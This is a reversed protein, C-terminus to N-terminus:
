QTETEPNKQEIFWQHVRNKFAVDTENENMHMPKGVVIYIPYRAALFSGPPYVKELNFIRVPVVPRGTKKALAVFGGFFKHIEGDTYRQGEPFIIAHAHYKQVTNVSKRLSKVAKQLSSVDIPLSLKKILPGLGFWKYLEIWALWIHPFGGVLSGVLPIDLVSQHNAAIISPCHPINERGRISVNLFTAKVLGIYTLNVMWYFLRSQYRYKEPLILYVFGFIVFFALIMFSLLYSFLIRVFVIFM